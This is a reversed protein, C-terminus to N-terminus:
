ESDLWERESDSLELPLDVIKKNKEYFAAEHKELKQGNMRKKRITVVTQFNCEGVEMYGGLFTLWHTYKDPTRVDYGLVRGVAPAILSFDKKWNMLPPTRPEEQEDPETGGNIIKFMERVAKEMNACESIDEYFIILACQVKEAQTLERDNLACIVDLVMRYDCNNRIPYEIGDIEVSYPLSWM